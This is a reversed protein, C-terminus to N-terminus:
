IFFREEPWIQQFTTNMGKCIFFYRGNEFPMCYTCQTTGALEVSRYARRLDAFNEELDRSSGMIIAVDGSKEGPGWYWYSNHGCLANPLGYKKGFFDIAAAEGYNRVFIVCQAQEDPTLTRYISDVVAVMEEWGFQDAYYQPLEAVSSREEAHPKVGLLSEYKIFQEVSLVPLAFPLIILAMLVILGSYLPRLWALTRKIKVKEVLVAGGALLMPYIPSLYYVKANGAIMMAFVVLYTWGLLRYQSGKRDFFFFVLGLLWIPANFFNMDRIQGWLFQLAGLQVNKEQSANHMFELSPFGNRVQWLVHPLFLLGAILAGFWFWKSALQKRHSTLLLGVVLGAILFGISYKNLLGLGAVLGFTLWQKPRNEALILIVLYAALAWFLVDFPNMSFTRGHGLLGPAAVVTLAAFGQAFKGGGLRRAMLAAIVVVVAGAVAPLFRIAHLSDGLLARIGALIALSLPPQDVYGFALHKSCAIYYLEDRFYNYNGHFIMQLLLQGFALAIPIAMDASFLRKGAISDQM